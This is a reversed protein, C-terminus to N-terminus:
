GPPTDPARTIRYWLVSRSHGPLVLRALLGGREFKVLRNYVQQHNLMPFGLLKRADGLALLRVSPTPWEEGDGFLEEWYVIEEGTEREYADWLRRRLAMLVEGTTRPMDLLDYVAVDAARSEERRV